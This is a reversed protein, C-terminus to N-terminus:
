NCANNSSRNDIIKKLRSNIELIVFNVNNENKKYDRFEKFQYIKQKLNEDLFRHYESIYSKLEKNKNISIINKDLEKICDLNDLSNKLNEIKNLLEYM